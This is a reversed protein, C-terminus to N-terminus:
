RSSTLRTEPLNWRFADHGGTKSSMPRRTVTSLGSERPPRARQAVTSSSSPPSPSTREIRRPPQGPLAAIIDPALTVSWTITRNATKAPVRTGGRPRVAAGSLTQQNSIAMLIGLTRHETSSGKAGGANLRWGISTEVENIRKVTRRASSESVRVVPNCAPTSVFGVIYSTLQKSKNSREPPM